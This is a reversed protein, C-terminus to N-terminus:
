QGPVFITDLAWPALPSNQVLWTQIARDAGTLVALGVVILVLGIVRRLRGGSDAAWGVRAILRQGWLAIALLTGCLGSVYGLLLILGWWPTAPLVTVVVYAYLPSCSSFVPGLAAGTLVASGWGRGQAAALAGTSRSQLSLWGSVREWARPFVMAGGLLVVVGGSLVAWVAAPIGLLAATSKLVLTFIVVSAGLSATVAVARRPGRLPGSGEVAGGVIVPLLPLVCPALCTLVGAVVAGLLIIM